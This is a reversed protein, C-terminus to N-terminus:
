ITLRKVIAATYEKTGVFSRQNVDKTVSAGEELVDRVAQRVRKAAAPERLFDLMMAGSLIMATPNSVWKGAIDPATGHVAEFVAKRNKGSGLNAGPAFGLGGVIGACLDSFLDGLFNPAVICDFWEPHQVVQMCFNDAILDNVALHPFEKAVEKGISLFLGHTKKLINAKHTITIKKRGYESALSFCHRMYREIVPRTFLAHAVFGDDVELEIGAYLDQLNERFVVIDVPVDAFRTKVRPYMQMPRVNTDLEFLTRLQVNVSSHGEGVPTMTPGKLAVGCQKIAAITAEPMYSGHSALASEGLPMIKWDFDVGSKSLVEMASSVVEPGIGDGPLTVVQYKGM